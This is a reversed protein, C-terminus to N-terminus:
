ELEGLITDLKEPTLNEHYTKGILCMPAGGCAGLCEVEKLTFKNDETTKGFGIGLKEKLHTAIGESGRLMCSINTCLCIKHRGVPKLEFMSYFTAVEYVAIKSMDLYDAVADMLETTLWGGNDEQTATLAAMVASQKQDSPYKTLWHDIKTRVEASLVTKKQESM